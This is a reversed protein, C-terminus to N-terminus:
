KVLSMKRTLITERSKLTLLYIGSPLPKGADTRGDWTFRYQGAPLERDEIVKVLRGRVSYVGIFTRGEVDNPITVEVTTLPNFPNPYNQSLAFSAPVSPGKPADGIGSLTQNILLRNQAGMELTDPVNAIFVDLDGDAEVDTLCVDASLHVLEPLWSTTVDSFFGSGNNFYLRNLAGTGFSTNSFVLDPGNEGDIDGIGVSTSWEFLDPLRSSSEDLFQGPRVESNNVLTLNRGSESIQGGSDSYFPMETIVLDWFGDGNLHIAEGYLSANRINPMLTSTSDSFTGTGDNILLRDQVGEYPDWNFFVIDNASDGNVDLCCLEVSDDLDFPLKDTTVDNFAGNGDNEFLRNRGLVNAFVLDPHNDGTVDCFKVAYSVDGTVPLRIMDRSFHGDGDNLLLYNSDPYSNAIVIDLDGDDDVDAIDLDNTFDELQPFRTSSQEEFYGMGNNILIRNQERYTGGEALLIDEDNDRDINAALARSTGDQIAPLRIDTEDLFGDASPSYSVPQEGPNSGPSGSIRRADRTDLRVFPNEGEETNLQPTYRAMWMYREQLKGPYTVTLWYLGYPLDRGNRDLGEWAYLLYEGDSHVPQLSAVRSGRLSHCQLEPIGDKLGTGPVSLSLHTGKSMWIPDTGAIGDSPDSILLIGVWLFIGLHLPFGILKSTM